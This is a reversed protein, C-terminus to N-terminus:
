VRTADRRTWVAAVTLVLIQRADIRWFVVALLWEAVVQLAIM